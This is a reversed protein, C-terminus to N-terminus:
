MGERRRKTSRERPRQAKLPFSRWLLVKDLYEVPPNLKRKGTQLGGKKGRTFRLGAERGGKGDV